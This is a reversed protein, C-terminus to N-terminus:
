KEVIKKLAMIYGFHLGEHVNNFQVAQEINNLTINYSTTYANFAKFSGKAYDLEILTPLEKLKQLMDGFAEQNVEGEPVSGKMYKAIFNADLAMELGSMKYCLLQQTAVIHGVNWIINNKFGTPITNLASLPIEKIATLINNRTINLLEFHNKM